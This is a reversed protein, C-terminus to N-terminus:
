SSSNIKKKKRPLTLPPVLVDPLSLTISITLSITYRIDPILVLKQERNGQIGSTGTMHRRHGHLAMESDLAFRVLRALTWEEGLYNRLSNLYKVRQSGRDRSGEIRGLLCDKELEGVRLIHGLFSLHRRRIHKRLERKLGMM